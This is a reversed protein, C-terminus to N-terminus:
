HLPDKKIKAYRRPYQEPTPSVKDFILINHQLLAGPMPIVEHLKLGLKEPGAGAADLEERFDAKYLFVRGGVRVFPATLEILVPLAAVARTVCDDFCERYSEMLSYEEARGCLVKVPIGAKKAAAAIYGCKKESAEIANMQVDPRMVALPLAPFGAGSGVDIVSGSEKLLRYPIISDFFHKLAADAPDTVSTLNHKKNEAVLNDYLSNMQLKQQDSLPIDNDACLKEVTELFTDM